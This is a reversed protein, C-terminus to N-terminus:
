ENVINEYAELIYPKAKPAIKDSTYFRDDVMVDIEISNDNNVNIFMGSKSNPRFEVTIGGSPMPGMIIKPFPINHQASIWNRFSDLINKSNDIVERSPSEANGSIWDELGYLSELYDKRVSIFNRFSKLQKSKKKDDIGLFFVSDCEDKYYFDSTLESTETNDLQEKDSFYSPSTPTEENYWDTNNFRDAIEM